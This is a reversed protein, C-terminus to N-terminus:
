KGVVGPVIAATPRRVTNDHVLIKTEGVFFSRFDAVLLNHAQFEPGEGVSTIERSGTPTHLRWGPELNRAMKWGEGSVWFPHGKTAYIEEDGVGVRVTAAGPRVTTQLVLKYALEGSDPDQALVRDGVRIREIPVSGTETWVPTGPLFCECTSFRAQSTQVVVESEREILPKDEPVYLDNYEQWWQWWSQAQGDTEQGTVESLVDDIRQNWFQVRWNEATVRQMARGAAQSAVAATEVRSQAARAGRLASPARRRARASSTSANAIRVHQAFDAEPGQRNFRISAIMGDSVPIASFSMQVPTALAGMLAPVFTYWDRQKLHGIAADRLLESDSGLAYRVLLDTSMQDDIQGALAILEATLEDSEGSLAEQAFVIADPDDIARLQAMAAEREEPTGKMIATRAEALVPEWKEKADGWRQQQSELWQIQQATLLRGQHPRLGLHRIAEKNAPQAQLVALWHLRERDKLGHRHCFRALLLHGKPSNAHLDRLQRYENIVREARADLRTDDLSLWQGNMRIQGSHWRALACDPAAGVARALVADRQESQGALDARVAEQVLHEADDLNDGRTEGPHFSVCSFLIIPGVAALWRSHFLAKNM